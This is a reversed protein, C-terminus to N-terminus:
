VPRPKIWFFSKKSKGMENGLVCLIEEGGSLGAVPKDEDILFFMPKRCFLHVNEKVSLFDLLNGITERKDVMRISGDEFLYTEDAMEDLSVDHSVMIVLSKKSIEAIRKLLRKRNNEDLSSLVEDFIYFSKPYKM